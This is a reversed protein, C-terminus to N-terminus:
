RKQQIQTGKHQTTEMGRSGDAIPAEKPTIRLSAIMAKPLPSFPSASIPVHGDTHVVDPTRVVSLKGDPTHPSLTPKQQVPTLLSSRQEPKPLQPGTPGPENTGAESSSTRAM